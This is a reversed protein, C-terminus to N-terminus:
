KESKIRVPLVYQKGCKLETKLERYNLRERVFSEVDAEETAVSLVVIENEDNVTFLVSAEMEHDVIFEPNKLLKKIEVTTSSAKETEAANNTAFATSTGLLVLAALLLSFQKM